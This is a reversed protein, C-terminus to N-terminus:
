QWLTQGSHVNFTCGVKAISSVNSGNGVYAWDSVRTPQATCWVKTALQGSKTSPRCNTWADSGDIYAQCGNVKNGRYGQAAYATPALFAAATAVALLASSMKKGEHSSDKGIDTSHHLDDQSSM